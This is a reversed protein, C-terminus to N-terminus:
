EEAARDPTPTRLLKRLEGALGVAADATADAIGVAYRFVVSEGAPLRLEESFFPAPNLAAFEESRAFWRPPHHPNEAADAMVILSTADDVDHRGEFAMWEHRQGRVEAGNGIGDPTVIRGDTFSRPGRWFLGGYGANERGRTTPSGFAIEADTVNTMDTEFTLAWTTDDLPHATLARQESLMRRGSQTIWDLSHAFTAVDDVVEAVVVDRHAQIGNNPLQVYGRGRLYTPGGWFNEDDVVPLAWSLGKHWVHDWPRFLSVVRGSRTRLPDLYPRPSELQPSDAEFVYRLLEIGDAAIVADSASVSLALTM